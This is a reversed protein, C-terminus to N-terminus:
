NTLDDSDGMVKNPGASRIEFDDGSIKLQFPIGWGDNLAGKKLIGKKFSGVPTTLDEMSKPNSGTIIEYTQIAQEITAISKYTAIRRAEDSAGAFNIVAVTALVGIIMMVLLMEVLTFGANRNRRPQNETKKM